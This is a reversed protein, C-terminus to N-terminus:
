CDMDSSSDSVSQSDRILITIYIDIRLSELSAFLCMGFLVVPVFTRFDSGTFIAYFSTIFKPFCIISFGKFIVFM